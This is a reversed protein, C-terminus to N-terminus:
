DDDDDVEDGKGDEKGEDEEEGADDGADAGVSGVDGEAAPDNFLANGDDATDASILMLASCAALSAM